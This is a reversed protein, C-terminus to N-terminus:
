AGPQDLLGLRHAYASAEVRSRLDLKRLINSVHVGATKESIFLTTAVERNTRGLAVLRLVELERRTLGLGAGVPPVPPVASAAAGPVARDVAPDELIIGARTALAQVERLLPEAGLQQATTHAARLAEVAAGSRARRALLAEAKRWRAYAAPYPQNMTDWTTAVKDWTEASSAGELRSWEAECMATYIDAARHVAAASPDLRSKLERFHEMLNAATARAAEIEEGGRRARASEARDAEGRLGHWALAAAFWVEKSVRVRALGAAVADRANDLRGEWLALGAELTLVPVVFRPDIARASLAKVAELDSAATAFDGRSMSIRARALHLDMAATGAPNADFAERARREGEEWRGLRFLTNVIMAQLAAGHFRALGMARVRALGEEAVVVAEELRNLPESLLTVLHVYARAVGDPDGDEEAIRQADHLLPVGGPDGLYALDFGLVALVQAEERRARTRRAVELAEQARRHSEAYRGALM